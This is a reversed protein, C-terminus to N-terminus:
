RAGGATRKGRTREAMEAMFRRFEQRAPSDESLIPTPERLPGSGGGLPHCRPCRMVGGAPASVFRTRTSDCLGCWPLREVRGPKAPEPPGLGRLFQVVLGGSRAGEWGRGAVVQGLAVPEWGAGALEQCIEGVTRRDLKVRLGEPLALAVARALASALTKRDDLDDVVVLPGGPGGMGSRLSAASAPGAPRQQHHYNEQDKKKNRIPHASHHEDITCEQAWQEPNDVAGDSCRASSHENSQAAPVGVPVPNGQAPGGWRAGSHENSGGASVRGGVVAAVPDSPVISATPESDLIAKREWELIYLNPQKGGTGRHRPWVRSEVTLWGGDSLERLYRDVSRVSKFGCRVALDARTPDGRVEDTRYTFGSLVLWLRVAQSSMPPSEDDEAEFLAKPIQAFPHKRRSRVRLSADEAVVGAPMSRDHLETTM